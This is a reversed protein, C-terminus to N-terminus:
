YALLCLAIARCLAKRTQLQKLTIKKKSLIETILDLARVVKEQPICVIQRIMDILLGLFTLTTTGWLTKHMSVPFRIKECIESFTRVQDNCLAKLLAIFLFDDLYNILDKRTKFRVIHAVADSFSQFHAGFPLCKDIFYYTKGDIPSEAKMVLYRFHAPKLGLHHFASMM